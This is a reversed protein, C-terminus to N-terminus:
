DSIGINILLIKLTVVFIEVQSIFVIFYKHQSLESVLNFMKIEQSSFFSSPM